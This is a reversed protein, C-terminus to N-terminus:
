TSGERRAIGLTSRLDEHLEIWVDHYSGIVAQHVM